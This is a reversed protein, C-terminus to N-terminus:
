FQSLCRGLDKLDGIVYDASDTETNEKFSKKKLWVTRCGLIKAPVIDREYSDGVVCTNEPIVNMKKLALSFIGPHPKEIGAKESDIMVDFFESLGISSCMEELNGYFNSVLGLRYNNKLASLINKSIELADNMEKVVTESIRNLTERDNENGLYKMQLEAQKKILGSYNKIETKKIKKLEEDAKVYAANYKEESVNLGSKKYADGFMVSWHIGNTDLTGGFDFIVANKM